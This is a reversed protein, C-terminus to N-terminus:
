LIKQTEVATITIAKVPCATKCVGCGICIDANVVPVSGDERTLAERPCKMVCLGCKICKDADIAALGIQTKQKEALSLRKIAGSPCVESCKHCGYECFGASYDIHVVPFDADAKKIIKMPCNQVCLNCNLCSDAFRAATGAGAPLIVNKVKLAATKVFAAGSKVAAALVILAAGGILLKRRAPSFATKEAPKLGYHIGSKRCVPLCRLCKICTENDVTKNKVDISGTPCKGACLGCAVCSNKDMYVKFPSFKALLGLIAGAPCINSCFWRGKFWVLVALLVVAALGYWAGGAANGFVSYPDVLRTVLVTGGFLLGFAAAAIFYKYPRNKQMKLKRRFVVTVLEQLLGLPCITSCYIRGFLFTLVVIAALVVAAAVSFDILVRQLVAMLQWDFIQVPYVIGAFALIMLIGAVAAVGVRLYFSKQGM